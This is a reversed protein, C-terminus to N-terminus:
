RRNRVRVPLAATRVPLALMAGSLAALAIAITLTQM